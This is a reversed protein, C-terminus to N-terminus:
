FQYTLIRSLFLHKQHKLIHRRLIQLHATDRRDAPIRSKTTQYFRRNCPRIYTECWLYIDASTIYWARTTTRDPTKTRYLRPRRHNSPTDLAGSHMFCSYRGRQQDITKTVRDGSELCYLSKRRSLHIPSFDRTRM